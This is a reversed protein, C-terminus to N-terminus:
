AAACCSEIVGPTYKQARRGDHSEPKTQHIASEANCVKRWLRTEFESESLKTFVFKWLRLRL